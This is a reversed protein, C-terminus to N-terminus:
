TANSSTCMNMSSDHRGLPSPSNKWIPNRWPYQLHDLCLDNWSIKRSIHSFTSWRMYSSYEYHISRIKTFFGNLWMGLLNRGVSQRGVVRVLTLILVVIPSITLYVLLPWFELVSWFKCLLPSPSMRLNNHVLIWGLPLTWTAAHNFHRHPIPFLWCSAFSRPPYPWPILLRSTPINCRLLLSRTLTRWLPLPNTISFHM